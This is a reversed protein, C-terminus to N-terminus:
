KEHRRRKCNAHCNLVLYIEDRAERRTVFLKYSNAYLEFSEGEIIGNFLSDPTRVERGRYSIDSFDRLGM